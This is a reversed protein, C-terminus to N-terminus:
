DRPPIVCPIRRCVAGVLVGLLLLALASPEPVPVLNVDGPDNVGVPAGVVALADVGLRDSRGPTGAADTMAALVVSLQEDSSDHHATGALAGYPGALYLGNSLAAIIDLQDFLGNGLPPNGSAGGPAGNWDGDGWTAPQGTLYKAAIQVKVLDLQDFDMDQDADGAQLVIPVGIGNEFIDLVEEETLAHNFLAVDDILGGWGESQQQPDHGIWVPQRNATLDGSADQEGVLEGDIYFSTYGAEPDYVGALHHFDGDDLSGTSTVADIRADSGGRTTIQFSLTDGTRTELQFVTDEGKGIIFGYDGGYLPERDAAVWATVSIADTFEDYFQDSTMVAVGDPNDVSLSGSGFKAVTTITAGDACANCDDATLSTGHYGNGSSDSFDTDFTWHGVLEADATRVTLGLSLTAVLLIGALAGM